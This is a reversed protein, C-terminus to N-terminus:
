DLEFTTSGTEFSEELSKPEGSGDTQIWAMGGRFDYELSYNAVFRSANSTYGELNFQGVGTSRDYESLGVGATIERLYEGPEERAIKCYGDDQCVDAFTCEDDTECSGDFQYSFDFSRLGWVGRPAGARGILTVATKEAPPPEIEQDVLPEPPPYEMSYDVDGLRVTADNAGVLLVDVTAGVKAHEITDNLLPRDPSNAPDFHFEWAVDIETDTVRDVQLDVGFGRMTYGHAPNYREPYEDVQEVDTTFHLGDILAVVVPYRLLNVDARQVTKVGSARGEPGVTAEISFRAGGMERPTTEVPQWGFKVFPADSGIEGTSFDGGIHTIELTDARCDGPATGVSWTSVRHNLREWGLGMQQVVALNTCADPDFANAEPGPNKVCGCLALALIVSSKKM